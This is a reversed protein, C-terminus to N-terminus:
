AAKRYFFSGEREECTLFTGFRMLSESAGVVLRGESRLARALSGAVRRVTDEDFYILVNRCVIIDFTGLEQVSADDVLNIRRWSIAESLERRVLSHPGVQSFWRGRVASDTSRFSRDGYMGERARALAKQSIDTALLEVRDLVGHESLLMALTLPEEGTAAAACWVRPREGRGLMPLIMDTCLARLQQVERFFYTESVVLSEVLADFERRGLDDYRLYYYYDLPSEFGAELLRSTIKGVLLQADSDGYHIGTREEVLASMVGLLAPPFVLRDTM